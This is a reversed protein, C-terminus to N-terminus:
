PDLHLMLLLTKIMQEDTMVPPPQREDDRGHQSAHLHTFLQGALYLEHHQDPRMAFDFPQLGGSCLTIIQPALNFISRKREDSRTPECLVARTPTEPEAAPAPAPSLLTDRLGKSLSSLGGFSGGREQPAAPADTRLAKEIQLDLNADMMINVCTTAFDALDRTAYVGRKWLEDGMGELESRVLPAGALVSPDAVLADVQPLHYQVFAKQKVCLGLRPKSSPLADMPFDDAPIPSAVRSGMLERARRQTPLRGLSLIAARAPAAALTRARPEGSIMGGDCYAHGEYIYPEFVGPIGMSMRVGIRVPLDPDTEPTLKREKGSDLETTIFILRKGFRRKVDAMTIDADGCESRLAEGVARELYTGTNLGPGRGRDMLLSTPAAAAATGGGEGSAAAARFAQLAM